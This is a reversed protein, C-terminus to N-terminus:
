KFARTLLFAAVLGAGAYVFPANTVRARASGAWDVKCVGNTIEYRTENWTGRNRSKAACMSSARLEPSMESATAKIQGSKVASISVAPM